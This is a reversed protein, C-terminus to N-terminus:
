TSGDLDLGLRSVYRSRYEALLADQDEHGVLKGRDDLGATSVIGAGTQHRREDGIFNFMRNFDSEVADLSTPEDPARCCM